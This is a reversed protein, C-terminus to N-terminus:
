GDNEPNDSLRKLPQPLVLALDGGPCAAQKKLCRGRVVAKIPGTCKIIQIDVREHDHCLDRCKPVTCGV